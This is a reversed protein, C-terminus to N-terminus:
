RVSEKWVACLEGGFASVVHVVTEESRFAVQAFVEGEGVEGCRGPFLYLYAGVSFLIWFCMRSEPIHRCVRRNENSRPRISLSHFTMLGISCLISPPCNVEIM